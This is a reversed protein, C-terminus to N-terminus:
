NIPFSFGFTSGKGETSKFILTGGQAMIVKKAMFLGLGTGDPRAKKANEARYFKSFLHHQEKKPVGIGTDTVTFTAYNKDTKLELTIDGGKKSYYIANDIFNMIVQMTKTEDLKLVPFSSPKKYVLNLDRDKATAVLQEIEAEVLKPLFVDNREIVFKGTKLRSVNLLDAILFVMRQSSMFAQNLFDKQQKTMQGVDGDLMMSIYGKISTLPTRLQHSAMSIFEDKAEDLSRLKENTAQLEKTADDIKQQLTINFQSIEVYRLHNQISIALEDALIEILEIDKSSYDIDNLRRGIILLGVFTDQTNLKFVLDINNENLLKFIDGDIDDKNVNIPNEKYEVISDLKARWGKNAFLEVSDNIIHNDIPSEPDLYLCAYNTNLEEKLAKLVGNSLSDINYSNVIISNIRNIASQPDNISLFLTKNVTKDINNKFTPYGILFLIFIVVNIIKTINAESIDGNLLSDILAQTVIYALTIIFVSVTISILKIFQPKVNLLSYKIVSLAMGFSFVIIVIPGLFASLEVLGLIPLIVNNLVGLIVTVLLTLNLSKYQNQIKVEKPAKNYQIRSNILILAFMIVLLVVYYKYFVGRILSVGESTYKAELIIQQSIAFYALLFALGVLIITLFYSKNLLTNFGNKSFISITFFYGSLAAVVPWIFVINNLLITNSQITDALLITGQWFLLSYSLGLFSLKTIKSVKNASFVAINIVFIFVFSILLSITALM